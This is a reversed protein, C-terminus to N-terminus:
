RLAFTPARVMSAGQAAVGGLLKICSLINLGADKAKTLEPRNGKAKEEEIRAEFAKRLDDPSTSRGLPLNQGTLNSFRTGAEAWMDNLSQSSM